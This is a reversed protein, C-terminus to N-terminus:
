LSMYSLVKGSVWEKRTDAGWFDWLVDDVPSTQEAPQCMFTNFHSLRPPYKFIGTEKSMILVTGEAAQARDCQAGMLPFFM